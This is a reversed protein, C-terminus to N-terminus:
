DRGVLQDRHISLANTVIDLVQPNTSRRALVLAATCLTEIRPAFLQTRFWGGGIRVKKVEYIRPGGPITYELRPDNVDMLALDRDAKVARLMEHELNTPDTVWVAADIVGGALKNFALTGGMSEVTVQELGPELGALHTWTYSGGSERPGVAVRPARGRVPQKLDEFAGVPGELSHAVYVCEDALRGLVLINGYREPHRRVASAYVDAQAFAIDAEGSALMEVNRISGETVRFSVDFQRLFRRLRVGYVRHYTQGTPGTALRLTGDPGQGHALSANLVVLLCLALTRM